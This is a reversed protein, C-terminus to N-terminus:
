LLSNLIDSYRRRTEDDTVSTIVPVAMSAFNRMASLDNNFRLAEVNSNAEQLDHYAQNLENAKSLSINVRDSLRGGSVGSKLSNDVDQGAGSYVNNLMGVHNGYTEWNNDKTEKERKANYAQEYLLMQKLFDLYGDNMGVGYNSSGSYITNKRLNDPDQAKSVARSDYATGTGTARVYSPAGYVHQGTALGNTTGATKGAPYFTSGGGRSPETYVRGM